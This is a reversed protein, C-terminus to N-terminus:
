IKDELVVRYIENEGDLEIFTGGLKQAIELALAQSDGVVVLDRDISIQNSLFYNRLYGGVLYVQYKSIIEDM